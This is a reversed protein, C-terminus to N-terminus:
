VVFGAMTGYGVNALALAIGPSIAVSPLFRGLGRASDTEDAAPPEDDDRPRIGAEAEAVRQSSARGHPIGPAITRSVLLGAVPALTAFAWVADYGGLSYALEGILSGFAL